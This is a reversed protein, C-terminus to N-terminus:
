QPRRCPDLRQQRLQLCTKAGTSWDGAIGAWLNSAASTGIPLLMILGCLLGLRSKLTAWVDNLVQVLTLLISPRTHLRDPEAVFFLGLACAM